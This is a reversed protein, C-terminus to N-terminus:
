KKVFEYIVANGKKGTKEILKLERMVNLFSYVPKGKVGSYKQLEKVTFRESALIEPPFLGLYDNINMFHYVKIVSKPIVDIKTANNKRHKGWGDLYKLETAEYMIIDLNFKENPICDKIPYIEGYFAYVEYFKASRTTNSVEGTEKNVWCLHKIAKMPYVVTVKEVSKDSLYDNLKTKMSSLNGTQVETIKNDRFIDAIYGSETRCEHYQADPEYYLKTVKHLTKEMYTSFAKKEAETETKMYVQSLIAEIKEHDSYTINIDKVKKM